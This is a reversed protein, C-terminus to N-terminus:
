APSQRGKHDLTYPRKYILESVMVWQYGEAEVRQIIIPLAESINVSGSHFLTISGPQLNKMIRAYMDDVSIDRYDLSDCDWQVPYMGEQEILEIVLDNYAGSPPRFLIPAKGTVAEIKENCKQIQELIENRGLSTLDTHTNSHSQVEHGHKAIAKVSDPYRKCFTGTVFFSASVGNKDLLTLLQSIDDNGWACNIGLAVKKEQTDVSYIPLKKAVSYTFVSRSFIGFFFLVLGSFIAISIVAFYKNLRLVNYRM